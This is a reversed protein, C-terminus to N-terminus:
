QSDDHTVEGTCNELYDELLWAIRNENPDHLEDRIASLRLLAQVIKKLKKFAKYIEEPEKRLLCMSLDDAADSADARKLKILLNLDHELSILEQKDM